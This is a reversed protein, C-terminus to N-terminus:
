QKKVEKQGRSALRLDSAFFHLTVFNNLKDVGVVKNSKMKKSAAGMQGKSVM